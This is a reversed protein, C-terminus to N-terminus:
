NIIGDRCEGADNMRSLWIGNVSQLCDSMWCCDKKGYHQSWETTMIWELKMWETILRDNMWQPGRKIESLVVFLDIYIWEREKMRWWLKM